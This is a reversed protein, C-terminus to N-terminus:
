LKQRRKWLRDQKDAHIIARVDHQVEDVLEDSRADARVVQVLAVLYLTSGVKAGGDALADLDSLGQAAVRAAVSIGQVNHVARMAAALHRKHRDTKDKHKHEWTTECM